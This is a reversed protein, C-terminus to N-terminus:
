ALHQLARRHLSRTWPTCDAENPNWSLTPRLETCGRIGVMLLITVGGLETGTLRKGTSFYCILENYLGKRSIVLNVWLSFLFILPNSSTPIFSVHSPQAERCTRMIVCDCWAEPRPLLLDVHGPKELALPFPSCCEVWVAKHCFLSRCRPWDALSWCGNYVRHLASRCPQTKKGPLPDVKVPSSLSLFVSGHSHLRSMEQLRFITTIKCSLQIKFVPVLLQNGLGKCM